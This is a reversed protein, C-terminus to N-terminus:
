VDSGQEITKTISYIKAEGQGIFKLRLHDCRKPRIPVTFTKLNTGSMSFIHEWAGDSDYQIQLYLKTGVELKLRINIRSIYKKDPTDTGILGTTAEWELTDTSDMIGRKDRVTNKGNISKIKNDAGYDVFFLEGDCTCFATAQTDDERHWMDRQSDYVFLHYKGENVEKMSIYYKNGIAGAAADSYSMAGLASSVETPLAGEYACIASRSKYFLTENVIALSKSCGKQVGRCPTTQIHYNSPYDGYVKHMCNEKFFIPYGLYNIAGTFQGDTGVSATYSDTSISAFSYWNKFDGLKSAYIENVVEGNRATGYRCGWLRNGSEIVFDMIPMRREINVYLGSDTDGNYELKHSQSKNLMGTVVFYNSGVEWVTIPNNLLDRVPDFGPLNLHEEPINFTVGDNPSFIKTYDRTSNPFSIKIYTTAISVWQKSSSSWQKLVDSKGSTDLWLTLDDYEEKGEPLAPATDGTYTVNYDAGDIKCLSFEMTGSLESNLYEIKGSDTYNQTNVFFMDPMVIIYSGMSLLTKPTNTLRNQVSNTKGFDVKYGNIYLDAYRTGNEVVYCLADKSLMGLVKSPTEADEGPAYIGRQPRPSLVPYDSSTLNKMDYFEGERIRLNHNYGGFVDIIDRTSPLENLKSLKM